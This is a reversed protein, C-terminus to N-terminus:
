KKREGKIEEEVQRNMGLMLDEDKDKQVLNKLNSVSNYARRHNTSNRLEKKQLKESEEKKSPKSGSKIIPKPIENNTKFNSERL